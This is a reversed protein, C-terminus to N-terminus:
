WRHASFRSGRRATREIREIVPHIQTDKQLWSVFDTMMPPVELPPPPTYTKEGTRLNVIYNQIKRYEGISVPM